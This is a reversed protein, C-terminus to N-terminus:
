FLSHNWPETATLDNDNVWISISGEPLCVFFSSSLDVMSHFHTFGSNRSPWKWYCVTLKGSPIGNCDWLKGPTIYGANGGESGMGSARWLRRAEDGERGERGERGAPTAQPAWRSSIIWPIGPIDYPYIMSIDLSISIGPRTIVTVYSNFGHGM